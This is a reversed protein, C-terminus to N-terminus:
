NWVYKQFSGLNWSRYLLLYRWLVISFSINAFKVANLVQFIEWRSLNQILEFSLHCALLFHQFYIFDLEQYCAFMRFYFPFPSSCVIRLLVFVPTFLYLFLYEFQASLWPFLFYFWRFLSNEPPGSTLAGQKWQLPCDGRTPSSLDWMNRPMARGFIGVLFVWRFLKISSYIIYLLNCM